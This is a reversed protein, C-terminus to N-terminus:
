HWLFWPCKSGLRSIKRTWDWGWHKPLAELSAGQDHLQEIAHKRVPEWDSQATRIQDETLGSHLLADVPERKLQDYLRIPIPNDSM